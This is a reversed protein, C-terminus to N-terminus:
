HSMTLSYISLFLPIQKKQKHASSNSQSPRGKATIDFVNQEEDLDPKLHNRGMNKM